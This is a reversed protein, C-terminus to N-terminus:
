DRGRLAGSHSAGARPVASRRGPLAAADALAAIGGPRKVRRRLRRRRRRRRCYLTLCRTRCHQRMNLVRHWAFARHTHGTSVARASM